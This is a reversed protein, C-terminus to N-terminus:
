RARCMRVFLLAEVCLLDYITHAHIRADAVVIVVGTESVASVTQRLVGLLQKGVIFIHRLRHYFCNYFDLVTLFSKIASWIIALFGPVTPTYLSM